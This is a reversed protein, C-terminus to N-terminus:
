CCEGQFITVWQERNFSTKSHCSRCLSILNDEESNLKNYDIHHVVLINKKEFCVQCIHNDRIKIKNKLKKNFESSYPEFSLGGKWEHNLKGDFIMVKNRASLDPRKKGKMHNDHTKYYEIRDISMKDKTKQSHPKNYHPSDKGYRHVGYMPNKTGAM